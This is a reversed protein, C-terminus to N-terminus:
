GNLTWGDRYKKQIFPDAEPCHAAKLNKSDWELPKGVRYAVLALLNHEVLTGSYDFNCLTKKDGKAAEIWEKHHGKSPPILDEKKPSKYQTMDGGTPMLIRFDYDCILYGKDGKYIVGKFMADSDRNFVKYQTLDGGTPM